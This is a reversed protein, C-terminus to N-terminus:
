LVQIPTYEGFVERLVDCIEGETCYVQAAKLIAPMLNVDGKARIKLDELATAVANGDRTAKLEALKKAQLIGVSPDVKLLGEPPAEKIQFKNVGVVIRKGSEIEKQYEYAADQIEKQVYGQEIAKVAGGLQDIKNIYNWAEEEISKTLAEVYYSGALPDVTEAVGSEYAVIQQTRLAIRV